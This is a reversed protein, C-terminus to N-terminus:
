DDLAKKVMGSLQHVAMAYMHSRNYRTIVYFNNLGAFPVLGSELEFSTLMVQESADIPEWESDEFVVGHQELEARTPADKFEGEFRLLEIDIGDTLAVPMIVPDGRRWGHVALYNAVSGIADDANTWIDRRNDGTFDIAYARFSSPMFQAMGLAGAYSGMFDEIEGGEESVLVLLQGLEKRFFDSRPPYDFALTALADLAKFSGMVRGYDTEVGIIAAIVEPPVGFESEARALAEANNKWFQVGRRVRLPQLFIERYEYWELRREAPRSIADIVSKRHEASALAAELGSRDLQYENVLDDILARAEPRDLYSALSAQAIGLLVIVFFFLLIRVASNGILM